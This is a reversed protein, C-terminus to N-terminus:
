LVAFWGAQPAPPRLITPTRTGEEAGRRRRTTSWPTKLREAKASRARSDPVLGGKRVAGGAHQEVRTEESVKCDDLM